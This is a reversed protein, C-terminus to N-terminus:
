TQRHKKAKVKRTKAKREKKPTRPFDPRAEMARNIADEVDCLRDYERGLEPFPEPLVLGSIIQEAAICVTLLAGSALRQTDCLEGEEAEAEARVVFDGRGDAFAFHRGLSHYSPHVSDASLQGYTIYNPGIGGQVAASLHKITKRKGPKKKLEDAERMIEAFVGVKLEHEQAWQFLRRAHKLISAEYDMQMETAFERGRKALASIWFSNEICCRTITRAEMIHDVQVLHRVAQFNSLTRALLLLAILKRNDSQAINSPALREHRFIKSGAQFVKEAFDTWRDNVM